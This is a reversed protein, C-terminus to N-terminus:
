NILLHTIGNENIEHPGYYWDTHVDRELLITRVSNADSFGGEYGSVVVPTDPDYGELENILERITLM